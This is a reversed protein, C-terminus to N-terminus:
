VDEMKRRIELKCMCLLGRFECPKKTVACSEEIRDNIIKRRVFNGCDSFMQKRKEVMNGVYVIEYWKQIIMM